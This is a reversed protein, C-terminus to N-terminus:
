GLVVRLLSTGVSGGLNRSHQKSCKEALNPRFRTRVTCYSLQLESERVTAAGVSVNAVANEIQAKTSDVAPQAAV